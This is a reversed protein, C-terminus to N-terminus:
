STKKIKPSKRSQYFANTTEHLRNQRLIDEKLNQKLQREKIKESEKIEEQFRKESEAREKQISEQFEKANKRHSKEIDQAIFENAIEERKWVSHRSSKPQNLKSNQSASLSEHTKKEHKVEFDEQKEDFVIELNNQSIYDTIFKDSQNAVINEIDSISIAEIDSSDLKQLFIGQLDQPLDSLTRTPKFPTESSDHNFVENFNGNGLNLFTRNLHNFGAKNALHELAKQKIQHAGQALQKHTIQGIPNNSQASEQHPSMITRFIEVAEEQFYSDLDWKFSSQHNKAANTPISSNESSFFIDELAKQEVNPATETLEIFTNEQLKSTITQNSNEGSNKDKVEVFDSEDFLEFLTDSLNSTSDVLDFIAEDSTNSILSEVPSAIETNDMVEFLDSGDLLESPTDNAEISEYPNSAALQEKSYHRNDNPKQIGFSSDQFQELAKSVVTHTTKEIENLPSENKEKGAKLPTPTLPNLNHPSISNTPDSM